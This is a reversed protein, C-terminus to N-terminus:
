PLSVLRRCRPLTLTWLSLEKNRIQFIIFLINWTGDLKEWSTIYTLFTAWWCCMCLLFTRLKGQITLLCFSLSWSVFYFITFHWPHHPNSGKWQPTCLSFEFRESQLFFWLFGLFLSRRPSPGVAPYWHPGSSHVAERPVHCFQACPSFSTFLLGCVGRFFRWSRARCWVVPPSLGNIM